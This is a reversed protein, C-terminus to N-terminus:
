YSDTKSHLHPSPLYRIKMLTMPPFRRQSGAKSGAPYRTSCENRKEDSVHKKTDSSFLMCYTNESMARQRM